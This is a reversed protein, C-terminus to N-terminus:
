SRITCKSNSRPLLYLMCEERTIKEKIKSQMKGKNVELLINNVAHYGSFTKMLDDLQLVANNHNSLKAM